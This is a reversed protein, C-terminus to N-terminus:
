HKNLSQMLAAKVRAVSPPRGEPDFVVQHAGFRPWYGFPPSNFFLGVTPTELATALHRIGTDNCVIAAAGKILARDQDGAPWREFNEPPGSLRAINDCVTVEWDKIGELLIHDYDPLTEAMDRILEAFHEPPWTRSAVSATPFYVVWPRPRVLPAQPMNFKLPWDFQIGLVNVPELFTEAEYRFEARNIAVDYLYRHLGRHRYGIKFKAPNLATILMSATSATIDILIDQAGLQRYARRKERWGAKEQRAPSYHVRDVLDEPVGRADSLTSLTLEANPFHERLTVLLPRTLLMDGFACHKIVAIRTVTGPELAALRAVAHKGVWTGKERWLKM